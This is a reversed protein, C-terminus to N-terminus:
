ASTRHPSLQVIKRSIVQKNAIQKPQHTRTFVRDMKAKIQRKVADVGLYKALDNFDTCQKSEMAKDGYFIPIVVFGNVAKAAEQAKEKGPNIGKTM